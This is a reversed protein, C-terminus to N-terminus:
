QFAETSNDAAANEESENRRYAQRLVSPPTRRRERPPMAHRRTHQRMGSMRAAAKAFRLPVKEAAV